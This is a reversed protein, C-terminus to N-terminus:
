RAAAPKLERPRGWASSWIYEWPEAALGARVPNHEIYAVIRELERQDRVWHDYSERQWLSQGTRGLVKNAERATTGKLWQLVRSAEGKPRLLVHVHNGMVVFARLEYYQLAAGREIAEVAIGAVKPHRLFMPGQRTTDLYRDM